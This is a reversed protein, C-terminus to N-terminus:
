CFGKDAFMLLLTSFGLGFHVLQGNLGVQDALLESVGLLFGLFNPKGEAFEVDLQLFQGFICGLVITFCKRALECLCLSCLGLKGFVSGSDFDPESFCFSREVEGFGLHFLFRTRLSESATCAGHQGCAVILRQSADNSRHGFEASGFVTSM